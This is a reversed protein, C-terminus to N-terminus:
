SNIVQAIHKRYGLAMILFVMEKFLLLVPKYNAADAADLPLKSRPGVLNNYNDFETQTYYLTLRSTAASPDTLPNIEYHRAVYPQSSYVPVTTEIWVKATVDRNFYGSFHTGSQLLTM